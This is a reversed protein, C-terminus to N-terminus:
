PVDVHRWVTFEDRGASEERSRETSVALRRPIHSVKGSRQLARDFLTDRVREVVGSHEGVVPDLTVV